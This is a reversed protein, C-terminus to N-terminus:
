YEGVLKGLKSSSAKFWIRKVCIRIWHVPRLCLDRRYRCLVVGKWCILRARKMWCCLITEVLVIIRRGFGLRWDDLKIGNLGMWGPKQRRQYDIHVYKKHRHWTGTRDSELSSWIAATFIHGTFYLGDLESEQALIKLRSKGVGHNVHERKFQYIHQCWSWRRLRFPHWTQIIHRWKARLLLRAMELIGWAELYRFSFAYKCWWSKYKAVVAL